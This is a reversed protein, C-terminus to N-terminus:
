INEAAHRARWETVAMKVQFFHRGFEKSDAHNVAIRKCSVQKWEPAPGVIWWNLWTKFAYPVGNERCVIEIPEQEKTSNAEILLGVSINDRITFQNM